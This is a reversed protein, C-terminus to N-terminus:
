EQIARPASRNGLMTADRYEPSAITKGTKLRDAISSNPTDRPGPAPRRRRGGSAAIAKRDQQPIPELVTRGIELQVAM